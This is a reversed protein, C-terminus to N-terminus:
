GRDPPGSSRHLTAALHFFLPQGVAAMRLEYRLIDGSIMMDREVQNVEKATSTRVVHASRLKLAVGDFSGESVEAIGNPHAIVAEVRDGGAPRFYGSEAHLPEGTAAHTTRQAYILFPKGAHTFTVKELYEFSEITPYDGRGSGTWTGLLGALPALGPHM